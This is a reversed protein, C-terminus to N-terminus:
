AGPTRTRRRPFQMAMAALALAPAALMPWEGVLVLMGTGVIGVCWACVGRVARTANAAAAPDSVRREMLADAAVFFGVAVAACGGLVTYGIGALGPAATALLPGHLLVLVSAFFTVLALVFLGVVLPAILSSDKM